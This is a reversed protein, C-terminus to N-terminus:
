LDFRILKREAPEQWSGEYKVTTIIHKKVIIILLKKEIFVPYLDSYFSRWQM